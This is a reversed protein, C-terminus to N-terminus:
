KNIQFERWYRMSFRYWHPNRWQDYVVFYVQSTYRNRKSVWGRCEGYDWIGLVSCANEVDECFWFFVATAVYVLLIFIIVIGMEIM